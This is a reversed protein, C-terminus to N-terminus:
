SRPQRHAGFIGDDPEVARLGYSRIGDPLELSDSFERAELEDAFVFYAEFHRTSMSVGTGKCAPCQEWGEDNNAYPDEPPESLVMIKGLGGCRQCSEREVM